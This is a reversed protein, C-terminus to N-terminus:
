AARKRGGVMVRRAVDIRRMCLWNLFNGDWEGLTNEVFFDKAIDYAYRTGSGEFYGYYSNAPNFDHHVNPSKWNGVSTDRYACAKMSGSIDLALVINPKVDVTLFPPINTYQGMIEGTADAHDARLILGACLPVFLLCLFIYASRAQRNFENTKNM